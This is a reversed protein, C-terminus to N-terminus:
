IKHDCSETLIYEIGIEDLAEKWTSIDISNECLLVAIDKAYAFATGPLFCSETYAAKPTLGELSIVSGGDRDLVSYTITKESQLSNLNSFHHSLQYRRKESM